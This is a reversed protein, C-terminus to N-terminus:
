RSLRRARRTWPLLTFAFSPAPLPACYDHYVKKHRPHISIFLSRARSLGVRCPKRRALTGREGIAVAHPTEFLGPPGVRLPSSRQLDVSQLLSTVSGYSTPRSTHARLEGACSRSQNCAKPWDKHRQILGSRDNQGSQHEVM